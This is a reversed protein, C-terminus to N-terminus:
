VKDINEDLEAHESSTQLDEEYNSVDADNLSEKSKSEM